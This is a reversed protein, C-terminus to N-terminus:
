IRRLWLVSARGGLWEPILCRWSAQGSRSLTARLRHLPPALKLDLTEAITLRAATTAGGAANGFVFPSFLDLDELRTAPDRTEAPPTAPPLALVRDYVAALARNWGDGMNTAEISARTRLGLDNRLVEDAVLAMVTQQLDEIGSARLIVEDIGPSDAGMVRCGSGFAVRTVLPIGHLGAEFLSTISPFPFSDIYIDAAQFFLEVDPREPHMLIQGPAAREAASWDATGGPGVAVLRVRPNSKLVPLLSDAYTMGPLDRFKTGRAVTLLVISDGPLGLAAKAASRSHTRAPKDLRLPLLMGRQPEIGRRSAALEQGSRRTNVVLDAFGAGLWFLHDAHDLLIVRPRRRMGALALFPLIDMNHVHLVMVDSQAMLVQLRRAWTLLGGVARNVRVIPVEELGKALAAPFTRYQRTLAVSHKNEVDAAIWRAMMRGHGGIAHIRTAVHLIRLPEGPRPTREPWAPSSVAAEGLDQLQRELRPSTFRGPHWLVAHNAAVQAALAAEGWRRSQILADVRELLVDLMRAHDHVLPAAERRWQALVAADLAPDVPVAAAKM